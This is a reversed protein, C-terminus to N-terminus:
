PMPTPVAGTLSRFYDLVGRAQLRADVWARAEASVPARNHNAAAGLAEDAAVEASAIDAEANALVDAARNMALEVATLDASYALTAEVVAVEARHAALRAAEFMSTDMSALTALKAQLATDSTDSYAYTGALVAVSGDYAAQAATHAATAEELAAHANAAVAAATEVAVTARAYAAIQGVKSSPSAHIFAQLNANAAHLSARQPAKDPTISAPTAASRARSRTVQEVGAADRSRRNGNEAV